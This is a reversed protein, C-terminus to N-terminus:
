FGFSYFGNGVKRERNIYLNACGQGVLALLSFELKYNKFYAPPAFGGKLLTKIM